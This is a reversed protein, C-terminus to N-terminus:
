IRITFEPEQEVLPVQQTVWALFSHYIHVSFSLITFVFLVYLSIITNIHSLAM